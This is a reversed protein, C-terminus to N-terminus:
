KKVKRLITLGTSSPKDKVIGENFFDFRQWKNSIDNIFKSPGAAYEEYYEDEIVDKTVIHNNSYNIDTDHITIVGRESMIKSYLDFDKKVGEYSHDADIHLYDIKIDEKIFFNHYANETTDIIVRPHFTSRFFSDKESWDNKGNVGNAADVIITQGIDGWNHTNDGEFINQEYLDLRAQTMIRPIFGGGSGLCVCVKARFFQIFSYILLGDGLHYDTAGHTWRYAVEKGNNSSIFNKIFDKNTIL